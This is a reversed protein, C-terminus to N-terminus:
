YSYFLIKSTKIEYAAHKFNLKSTLDFILRHLNSNSSIYKYKM